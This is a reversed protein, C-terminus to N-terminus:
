SKQRLTRWFYQWLDRWFRPRKKHTKRIQEFPGSALIVPVDKLGVFTLRRVICNFCLIGSGKYNSPNIKEWIENPVIVDVWADCGYDLSCDYCEAFREDDRYVWKRQAM